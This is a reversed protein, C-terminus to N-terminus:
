GRSKLLTTTPEDVASARVFVEANGLTVRARLKLVPREGDNAASGAHNEFNGLVARGDAEVCVGPPVIIELNGCVVHADIEVIRSTWQAQRLDLEVNGFAASVTM